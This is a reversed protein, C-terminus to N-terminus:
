RRAGTLPAEFGAAIFAVLRETNREVSGPRCAGASIAPVTDWLRLLHAMAGIAFLMRWMIEERSLKPLAKQIAAVFRDRLESFHEPIMHEIGYEPEGFLRGMLRAFDEGHNPDDRLKLVPAVFAEAVKEVSPRRAGAEKELRDLRALREQNLPDICRHVVASVLAEKSGFHYHVAALNVGAEAIISRLSTAGIGHRAFLREAADLIREKTDNM